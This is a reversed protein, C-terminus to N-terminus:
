VEFTICIYDIVIVRLLNQIEFHTILNNCDLVGSPTWRACRSVCKVLTSFSELSSYKGVQFSFFFCLYRSVFRAHGYEGSCLLLFRTKTRRSRWYEQLSFVSMMFQRLYQSNFLFQEELICCNCLM